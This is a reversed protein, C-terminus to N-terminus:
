RCLPCRDSAAGVIRGKLSRASRDRVPPRHARAELLRRSWSDGGVGRRSASVLASPNRGRGAGPRARNAPILAFRPSDAWQQMHRVMRAALPETESFHAGLACCGLSMAVPEHAGAFAVARNLEFAENVLDGAGSEAAPSSWALASLPCMLDGVVARGLGSERPRCLRKACGAGLSEGMRPTGTPRAPKPRFVMTLFPDATRTRQQAQGIRAQFRV